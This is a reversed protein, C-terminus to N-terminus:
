APQDTVGPLDHPKKLCQGPSKASESALDPEALHDAVLKDCAYAVDLGISGAGACANGSALAPLTNDASLLQLLSRAPRTSLALGPEAYAMEQRM